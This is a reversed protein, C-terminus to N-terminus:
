SIKQKFNICLEKSSKTVLFLLTGIVEDLLILPCRPATHANNHRAIASNGMQKRNFTNIKPKNRPRKIKGINMTNPTNMWSQIKTINKETAQNVEIIKQRHPFYRANKFINM